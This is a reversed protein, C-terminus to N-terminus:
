WMRTMNSASLAAFMRSLRQKQLDAKQKESAREFNDLAVSVNEAIRTLLAIIEEDAAWSPSLFSLM